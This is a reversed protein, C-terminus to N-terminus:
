KMATNVLMRKETASLKKLACERKCADSRSSVTEYYVMCVPRRARTYRAGKNSNNHEHLRRELDTTVGTYLSNDNCELIYVHWSSSDSM